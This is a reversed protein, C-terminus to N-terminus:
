RAIVMKKASITKGDAVLSYTYTGSPLTGTNFQVTGSGAVNYVKLQQGKANTVLIRAARVENPIFYEITTSSTVPNPTNQKIFALSKGSGGAIIGKLREIEKEQAEVKAILEQMGKVLPVVFEGYRLGYFDKDNQPADIGSFDFQLEKASKEVEQAIFGTQRRTNPRADPNPSQGLVTNLRENNVTYSVPRLKRILEIGPIDEKIDEKFRGDSLTTWSVRGGISTVRTNGIRVQDSATVTASAGIATVNRLDAITTRTETGVFTGSFSNFGLGALFGVGTNRNGTTIYPLASYGLATNEAGTTANNLAIAGFASNLIGAARFLAEYGVATNRYSNTATAAANFGIAVSESGAANSMASFGVAVNKSGNFMGAMSLAGVAVNQGGAAMTTLSLFGVATNRFGSSNNRLSQYGLATNDIGTENFELSFAGIATNNSQRNRRLAYAGFASNNIGVLNEMSSRSGVATNNRVTTGAHSSFYGIAINDTGSRFDTFASDGLITNTRQASVLSNTFIVLFLTLVFKNM